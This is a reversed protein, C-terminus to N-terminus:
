VHFRSDVMYPQGFQFLFLVRMVSALVKILKKVIAGVGRKTKTMPASHFISRRKNFTSIFSSESSVHNFIKPAMKPLLFFVSFITEPASPPISLSKKVFSSRASALAFDPSNKKRYRSALLGCFMARRNMATITTKSQANSITNPM